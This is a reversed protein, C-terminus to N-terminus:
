QYFVLKRAGLFQMATLAILILLLMVSIASGYGFQLNQFATQYILLVTTTTANGPGGKTMVYPQDFLQMAGIIGVVSVFFVSPSIMPLKVSFFTHLPGAGDIAAAELVDKPMASLAAVFLVFAFGVQQWVAIIVITATAGFDSTLWPINPIGLLGLYYNVVGFKQDFMYGMVIAVSSASALLPLYFITRFTSRAFANRRQQVLLALGLGVIVELVVISLALGITVAFSHLVTQDGALQKYNSIGAFRPPSIVDWHYFSLGITALIPGATFLMVVVLSPLIMAYGFAAENRQAKV